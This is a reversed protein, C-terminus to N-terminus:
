LYKLRIFFNNLNNLKSIIISTGDTANPFTLSYLSSGDGLKSYIENFNDNILDGGDRLVTGTGDNATSGIGLTQKAM